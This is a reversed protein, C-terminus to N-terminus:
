SNFLYQTVKLAVIVGAIAIGIKFLTRQPKQLM